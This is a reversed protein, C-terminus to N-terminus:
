HWKIDNWLVEFMIHVIRNEVIMVDLPHNLSCPYKPKLGKLALIKVTKPCLKNSSLTVCLFMPRSAGLYEGWYGHGYVPWIKMALYSVMASLPNIVLLLVVCKM